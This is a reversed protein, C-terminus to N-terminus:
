RVQVGASENRPSNLLPEHATPWVLQLKRVPERGAGYLGRPPGGHQWYTVLPSAPTRWIPGLIGESHAAIRDTTMILIPLPGRERSLWARYAQDAIRQEARASTMVFLITPFGDYDRTAMGSDRYCYYARFKAAYNRASETGREYELFFGYTVASRVFSGYGDPKCCRRECAAAGRWGVLEDTGGQRRAADAALAFAVFM